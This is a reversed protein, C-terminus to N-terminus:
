APVTGSFAGTRLLWTARASPRRRGRCAERSVNHLPGAHNARTHHRTGSASGHPQDAWRWATGPHPAGCTIGAPTTVRRTRGRSQSSVTPMVRTASRLGPRRARWPRSRFRPSPAARTCLRQVRSMSRTGHYSIARPRAPTHSSVAHSLAFIGSPTRRIDSSMAGRTPCRKRKDRAAAEAVSGDQETRVCVRRGAEQMPPGGHTGGLGQGLKDYVDPEVRITLIIM